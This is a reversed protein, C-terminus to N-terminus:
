TRDGRDRRQVVLRDRIRLDVATIGNNLFQRDRQLAVLRAWAARPNEEPLRIDIGDDLRLNWRRDGVWIGARVRAMLKPATALMDLLAPTHRPAAAGVVVKLHAYRELGRAGIVVGGRDVLVFRGNRQWIAMARRERLRIYLTGPLRREVTADAVWGIKVLRARIADTDLGVIPDGRRVAIAALLQGKTVEARGEVLIDDVRLGARLTLGVMAAHAADALRAAGGSRWAWYGGGGAGAFLLTAGLAYLAPRLWRPAVRRRTKRKRKRKGAPATRAFPNLRRV